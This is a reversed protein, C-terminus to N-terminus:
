RSKQVLFLLEESERHFPRSDWDGYLAEVTLEHHHFSEELEERSRFILENLSSLREDNQKFHYHLEFQVRNAKENVLETWMEVDGFEDHNVTRRSKAWTWNRWAWTLPNRSDFLLRGGPKLINKIDKLAQRWASEELFFQAVHSTMIVLDAGGSDLFDLGAFAETSGKLWQVRQGGPRNRALKLMEGAPDVGIVRSSQKALEVTLIGTGCGLDIITESGIRKAEGLFFDSDKGLPCFLDYLAALKPSSFENYDATKKFM